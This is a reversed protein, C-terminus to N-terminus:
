SPYVRRLELYEQDEVDVFERLFARHQDVIEDRFWNWTEPDAAEKIDDYLCPRLVRTLLRGIWTQDYLQRRLRKAIAAVERERGMRRILLHEVRSVLRVVQLIDGAPSVNVSPGAFRRLPEFELNLCDIFDRELGFDAGKVKEFSRIHITDVGPANKWSTAASLYDARDVSEAMYAELSKHGASLLHQKYCSLIYDVPNRVYLIVEVRQDALFRTIEQIEEPTCPWFDESSLVVGEGNWDEIESIVENWADTSTVGRMERVAWALKYHAYPLRSARGSEPYLIGQEKLAPSARSLFHQLTTTGTKHTGIHLYITKM